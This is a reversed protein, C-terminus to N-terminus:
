QPRRQAYIVQFGTAVYAKNITTLQAIVWSDPVNGQTLAPGASIVHFYVNISILASSETHTQQSLDAAKQNTEAQAAALQTANPPSVGCARGHRDQSAYSEIDAAQQAQLLSHFSAAAAEQAGLSLLVALLLVESCRLPVAASRTM